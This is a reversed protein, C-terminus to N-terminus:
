DIFSVGFATGLSLVATNKSDTFNLAMASTDHFLTVAINRGEKSSISESLYSQYPVKLYALKGYGGRSVYIKGNDVYNAIAM